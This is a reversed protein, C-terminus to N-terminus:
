LRRRARDSGTATDTGDWVVQNRGAVTSGAGTFVTQGAANTITIQASSAGAPLNYVLSAQSNALDIQNGTADVQKGIYSVMNNTQSASM